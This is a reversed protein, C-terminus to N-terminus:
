CSAGRRRRLLCAGALLLMGASGPEPVPSLSLNFDFDDYFNKYGDADAASFEIDTLSDANFGLDEDTIVNVSTQLTTNVDSFARAALSIDNAATDISVTIESWGLTGLSIATTQWVASGGIRYQLFNDGTYGVDVLTQGLSDRFSMAVTNMGVSLDDADTPCTWFTLDIRMDSTATPNVGKFDRSDLRYSYRMNTDYALLNLVQTGTRAGTYEYAAIYNRQFQGGTYFPANRDEYLRGGALAKWQGSNDAIDVATGGVGTGYMGANYRSVDQGHSRDGLSYPYTGPAVIGTYGNAPNNNLYFQADGVISPDTPINNVLGTGPVRYGDSEEFSGLYAQGVMPWLLASSLWLAIKKSSYALSFM